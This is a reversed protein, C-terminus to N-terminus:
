ASAGLLSEYAGILHELKGIRHKLDAITGQTTDIREGDRIEGTFHTGAEYGALEGLCGLAIKTKFPSSKKFEPRSWLAGRVAFNYWAL